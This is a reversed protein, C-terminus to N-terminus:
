HAGGRAKSTSKPSEPTEESGSEVEICQSDFVDYSGVFTKARKMSVYSLQTLQTMSLESTIFSTQFESEYARVDRADATVTDTKEGDPTELVIKIKIKM